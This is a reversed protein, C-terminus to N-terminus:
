LCNQSSTVSYRELLKLVEDMPAPKVLFENAGHQFCEERVSDVADATMVIIISPVASAARELSRIKQLTALGGIGPMHLDLFIWKFRGLEKEILAIASEGDEVITQSCGQRKLLTDLYFQNTENDEVILIEYEEGGVEKSHIAESRGCLSTAQQTHNVLGHSEGAEIYGLPVHLSFTAGEGLASELTMNGGILDSMQKCIALGLGTGGFERTNSTDAQAFAEFIKTHDKLAIGVGTDSVSFCVMAVANEVSKVEVTLSVEGASTFKLANSLLNRMIQTLISVDGVFAPLVAGEFPGAIVSHKLVVSKNKLQGHMLRVQEVTFDELSFESLDVETKCAELKSYNLVEDILEILHEGSDVITQLIERHEPNDIECLLLESFGLIPNLPTRLEHSMVALFDSKASNAQEARLREDILRQNIQRQETVCRASVFVLKLDPDSSFSWSLWSEGLADGSQYESFHLVRTEYNSVADGAVVSSFCKLFGVRHEPDILDVVPTDTLFEVPYGLEKLWSPSCSQFKGDFDITARYDPSLAFFAQMEHEILEAKTIDQFVGVAGVIKGLHDYQPRGSAMTYKHRGTRSICRLELDYSRGEQILAKFAIDLASRDPEPFFSFSDELNPDYDADVEMIARVQDSWAVRNTEVSFEWSGLSAIKGAATLIDRQDTTEILAQKLEDIVVTNGIMYLAQGAADRQTVVGRNSVWVCENELNRFRHECSWEDTEGRLHANLSDRVMECDDEHVQKMWSEFTQTSAVFGPDLIRPQGAQVQIQDLPINWEWWSMRASQLAFEFRKQLAQLDETKRCEIMQWLHPAPALSCPVGSLLVSQPMEVFECDGLSQVFVAGGAAHVQTAGVTGDTGSGSLIVASVASGRTAALSELYTDIPQEAGAGRPRLRVCLEDAVALTGLPCIFVTNPELRGGDVMEHVPMGTSVALLEAPLGASNLSFSQIVIFCRGSDNPVSQLFHTLSQLDEESAGIVVINKLDDFPLV